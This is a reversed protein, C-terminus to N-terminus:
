RRGEYSGDEQSGFGKQVLGTIFSLKQSKEAPIGSFVACTDNKRMMLSISALCLM